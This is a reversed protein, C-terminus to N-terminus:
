RFAWITVRRGKREVRDGVIRTDPFGQSRIWDALEEPLLYRAVDCLGAFPAIDADPEKKGRFRFERGGAVYSKRAEAADTATQTDLLLAERTRPLIQELHGIPDSLHYLVGIHHLVDWEGPLAAPPAEEFNWHAVECRRGYAWVRALTKLVNEMRGDIATVSAGLVLLGLTHIGEFCGFEAVRKGALPFAKNFAIQRKEIIAQVLNRKAGSWPAGIVRGHVDATMAAWPLLQNLEGLASPSLEAAPGAADGLLIRTQAALGAADPEEDLVEGAQLFAELALAVEAAAAQRDQVSRASVVRNVARM